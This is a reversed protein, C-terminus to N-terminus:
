EARRLLSINRVKQPRTHRGACDSRKLSSNSRIPRAVAIVMGLLIDVCVVTVNVASTPERDLPGTVILSTPFSAAAGLAAGVFGRDDGLRRCLGEYRSQENSRRM